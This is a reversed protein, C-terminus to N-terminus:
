KETLLLGRGWKSAQSDKILMLQAMRVERFVVSPKGTSIAAFALLVAISILKGM